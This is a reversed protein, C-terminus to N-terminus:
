LSMKSIQFIPIIEHHSEILPPQSCHPFKNKKLFFACIGVHLFYTGGTRASESPTQLVM